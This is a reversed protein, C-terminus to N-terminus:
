RKLIGLKDCSFAERIRREGMMMATEGGPPTLSELKALEESFVKFLAEIKTFPSGNRPYIEIFDESISVISNSIWTLSEHLQSLELTCAWQATGFTPDRLVRTVLVEKFYLMRIFMRYLRIERQLSTQDLNYLAQDLLPWKRASVRPFRDLIVLVRRVNNLFEDLREFVKEAPTPVVRGDSGALAPAGTLPDSRTAGPVSVGHQNGGKFFVDSLSRSFLVDKFADHMSLVDIGARGMYASALMVRAETNTPEESVIQELLAIARSTQGKDLLEYAENVATYQLTSGKEKSACGALAWAM